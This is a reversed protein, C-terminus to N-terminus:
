SKVRFRLMARPTRAIETSLFPGATEGFPILTEVTNNEPRTSLSGTIELRDRRWEVTFTAARGQKTTTLSSFSPDLGPARVAGFFVSERTQTRPGEINTRFFLGDIPEWAFSANWRHEGTSNRIQRASYNGTPQIDRVSVSWSWKGDGPDKRLEIQKYHRPTFGGFSGGGFSGGSFSGGGRFNGGGGGGGRFNGGGGSSAERIEGTIPDITESDTFLGSVSLILDEHGFREFPFDVSLQLSDIIKPSTNQSVIISDSLAVSRVPNETETRALTFRMVGRDSFRRDYSATLNKQREPELDSAGATVIESSLSSSALFQNFSLQGVSRSTSLTYTARPQPRFSISLEGKPDTQSGSSVDRTNIEYSEAGVTGRFTWKDTFNWDVSSDLSRRDEQVRSDSGDIFIEQGNEFIQFGGEFYNFANSVTTRFTLRQTPANTVLLRTATEGTESDTFSSRSLDASRFISASQETSTTDVFALMIEGASALPRIYEASFDRLDDESDFSEDVADLADAATLRLPQSGRLDKSFESNFSLSSERPLEFLAAFKIADEEGDFTNLSSIRQEPNAPDIAVFESPSRNSRDDANGTVTFEHPGWFFSGTGELQASRENQQDNAGTGSKQVETVVEYYAPRNEATVVNIVQPYGQMDIDLRAGADILEILVVGEVPMEDLRERASKGKPPPREGNILLNSRVGSLGRGGESEQTSVGPVREVMDLATLPDFETFYVPAFVRIGGGGVDEIQALAASCPLLLLATHRILSKPLNFIM